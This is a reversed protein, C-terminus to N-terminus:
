LIQVRGDRNTRKKTRKSVKGINAPNERNTRKRRARGMLLVQSPCDRTWCPGAVCDPGKRFSHCVVRNPFWGTKRRGIGMKKSLALPVSILSGRNEVGQSIRNKRRSFPSIAKTSPKEKFPGNERERTPFDCRAPPLFDPSM